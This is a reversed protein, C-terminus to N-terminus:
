ARFSMAFMISIIKSISVKKIGQGSNKTATSGQKPMALMPSHLLLLVSVSFRSLKM